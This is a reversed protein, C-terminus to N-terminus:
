ADSERETRRQHLVARHAQLRGWNWARWDPTYRGTIWLDPRGYLFGTMRQGGAYVWKAAFFYSVADADAKDLKPLVTVLAPVADGSLRLAYRVDFSRGEDLRAANVRIILADPNVVHLAFIAALGTVFVGFAFRERRGRLVTLAFWLFLVALWVMFAAVYLRLETLGYADVYLTMRHLASAMIVALMLLQFVALGRFLRKGATGADRLLWDTALLVLLVLAAVTSLEFFGQRAYEAYTLSAIERIREEGGFLYRFQVLVFSLFLLDLLTMTIAAEVAGIRIGKIDKPEPIEARGGELLAKLIGVAIWACVLTLFVHRFIEKINFFDRLIVAYAADASVFLLGFVALLPLAILLGRLAAHIHLRVAWWSESGTQMAFRRRYAAVHFPAGAILIAFAELLARAYSFVGAARPRFPTMWRAALALSAFVAFLSLGKLIHSDRWAFGLSFLMALGLLVYVRKPAQTYQACLMAGVGLAAITWLAFNLGLPFARFLGDGWLGLGLASVSAVAYVKTAKNM